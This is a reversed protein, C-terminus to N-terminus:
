SHRKLLYVLWLAVDNNTGELQPSSGHMMILQKRCDLLYRAVGIDDTLAEEHKVQRWEIFTEELIRIVKTAKCYGDKYKRPRGVRPERVGPVSVRYAM